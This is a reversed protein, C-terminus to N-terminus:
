RADLDYSYIPPLGSFWFQQASTLLGLVQNFQPRLLAKDHAPRSQGYGYANFLLTAILIGVGIHVLVGGLNDLIGVEPLETSQFFARRLLELFGWFVVTLLIFTFAQAGLGAPDDVSAALNLSFVQLVANVFPAAGRYLLASMGTAIYLVVITLVGRVIGRTYGLACVTVTLLMMVFDVPKFAPNLYYLGIMAVIGLIGIILVPVWKKAAVNEPPPPPLHSM